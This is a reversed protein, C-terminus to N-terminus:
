YYVPVISDGNREIGWGMKGVGEASIRALVARRMVNEGRRSPRLACIGPLWESRMRTEAATVVPVQDALARRLPRLGLVAGPSAARSLQMVAESVLTPFGEGFGVAQGCAVEETRLHGARLLAFIQEMQTALQGIWRDIRRGIWPSLLWGLVAGLGWGGSAARLGLLIAQLEAAADREPRIHPSTSEMDCLVVCLSALRLFISCLLFM